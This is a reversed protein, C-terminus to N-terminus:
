SVRTYAMRWVEVCTTRPERMFLDSITNLSLEKKPQREKPFYAGDSYDLEEVIDGEYIEKGNRDKLGTSDQRIFRGPFMSEHIFTGNQRLVFEGSLGIFLQGICGVHAENINEWFCKSETDWVRYPRSM